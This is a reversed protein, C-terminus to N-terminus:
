ASNDLNKPFDIVQHSFFTRLATWFAGVWFFDLPLGVMGFYKLGEMSM